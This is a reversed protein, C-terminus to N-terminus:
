SYITTLTVTVMVLALIGKVLMGTFRGLMVGYGARLAPKLQSQHILEVILVGAFGGFFSGMIAGFGYLVPTMVITGIVGGILAAWIGKGSTGYRAAGAIGLAFDLAEALLSIFLLIILIKIGIKDFGTFLAYLIADILIIVTGPLGFVISFIGAFLVLLFLTIGAIELPSM